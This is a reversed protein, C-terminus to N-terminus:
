HNEVDYTDCGQQLAMIRVFDLALCCLSRLSVILMIGQVKERVLRAEGDLEGSVRRLM